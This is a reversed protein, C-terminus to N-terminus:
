QTLLSEYHKAQRFGKARLVQLYHNVRHPQPDYRVANWMLQHWLDDVRMSRAAENQMGDAMAVYTGPDRIEEPLREMLIELVTMLRPDCSPFNDEGYLSWFRLTWHPDLASACICGDDGIAEAMRKSMNLGDYHPGYRNANYFYRVTMDSQILTMFRNYATQTMESLSQTNIVM